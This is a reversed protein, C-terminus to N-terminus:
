IKIRQHKYKLYVNESTYRYGIGCGITVVACFIVIVTEM